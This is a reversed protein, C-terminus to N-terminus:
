YCPIPATPSGPSSGPVEEKDPFVAGATSPTTKGAFSASQPGLRNRFVPQNPRLGAPNPGWSRTCPGLRQRRRLGGTDPRGTGAERRFCARPRRGVLRRPNTRLSRGLHPPSVIAEMQYRLHRRTDARARCRASPSQRPTTSCGWRSEVWTANLTVPAVLSTSCTAPCTFTWALTPVLISRPSM